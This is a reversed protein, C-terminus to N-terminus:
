LEYLSPWQVTICSTHGVSMCDQLFVPGYGPSIKLAKAVEELLDMVLEEIESM